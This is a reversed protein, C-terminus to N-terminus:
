NKDNSFNVEESQSLPHDPHNGPIQLSADSASPNRFFEKQFIEYSNCFLIIIFHFM